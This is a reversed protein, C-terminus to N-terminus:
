KPINQYVSLVVSEYHELDVGFTISRSTGIGSVFRAKRGPHSVSIFLKAIFLFDSILKESVVSITSVPIFSIKECINEKLIEVLDQPVYGAMDSDEIVILIGQETTAIHSFSIGHDSLTKLLREGFGVMHDIGPMYVIYASCNKSGTIGISNLDGVNSIVTQEADINFINKYVIPIGAEEVPMIADPCPVDPRTSLEYAMKYSLKRFYRVNEGVLSTNAWAIGLSKGVYYLRDVALARAVNAAIIELGSELLKVSGDQSVGFSGSFVFVGNDRGCFNEIKQRCSPLIRGNEGIIILDAVPVLRANLLRSMIVASFYAGRSIVYDHDLKGSSSTLYLEFEDLEDLSKLGLDETLELYFNKLENFDSLIKEGNQGENCLSVLIETVRDPASVVAAECGPDSNVMEVAILISNQDSMTSSDFTKVNLKATASLNKM